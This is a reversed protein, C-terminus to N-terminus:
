NGGPPQPPPNNFDCNIIINEVFTNEPIILKGQKTTDLNNYYVGIVFWAARILSVDPTSQQAVAVYSYEGDEFLGTGPIVSSDRSSFSYQTSGFPIENSVFRLNQLSFDGASLLPDKFIVLHTRTISDPWQGTFTITGSFGSEGSQPEIGKDCGSLVIVCLSVSLVCLSVSIKLFAKIM